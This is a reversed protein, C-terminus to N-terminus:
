LVDTPQKGRPLALLREHDCHTPLCNAARALRGRRIYALTEEGLWSVPVPVGHLDAVTRKQIATPVWCDAERRQVDGMEEVTLGHFDFRGFHSCYHEGERLSVSLVAQEAFLEGFRYSGNEDMELDLDQVPVDLGHLATATGSVVKYVIEAESFAQAIQTLLAHWLPKVEVALLHEVCGHMTPVTDIWGNGSPSPIAM